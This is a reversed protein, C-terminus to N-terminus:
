LSAAIRQFAQWQRAKSYQDTLMAHGQKAIAASRSPEALAHQIVKGASAADSYCLMTQGDVMGQPYTGVDSVMLAGCGLAEFCRMNGRDDGAMDVAGNLVIKTRSLATYLDLGFVPPQSVRQIEKPRRHKSLPLLRGVFSEAWRTPRSRDLHFVINHQSCQQAVSELIEARKRHHRTYGGIFLVDIDRAQNAAYPGMAPDYAPAFYDSRWGRDTYSQLITPFNCVITDYAGFDAQGSPAARWAVKAKVCGPLRKVFDNGFRVPDLNYFVESRHEEIQALLITAPDPAGPLGKEHAWLAQMEPQSGNTFFANSDGNLVPELYHTAGFRDALFAAKYATFSDAKATLRRLRPGYAPYVGSNQFIRM